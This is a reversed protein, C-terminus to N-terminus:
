QDHLQAPHAVARTPDGVDGLDDGHFPVHDRHLVNEKEALLSHAWFALYESTNLWRAEPRTVGIAALLISRGQRQVKERGPSVLNGLARVNALPRALVPLPDLTVGM